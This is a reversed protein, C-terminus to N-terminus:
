DACSQHCPGAAAVAHAPPLDLYLKPVGFHSLGHFLKGGIGHPLFDVFPLQLWVRARFWFSRRRSAFQTCRANLWKTDFGAWEGSVSVLNVSVAPAVEYNHIARVEEISYPSAALVRAIHDFQFDVLETDLWFDSLVGWVPARALLEDATLAASMTQTDTTPRMLRAANTIFRYQLQRFNCISTKQRKTL